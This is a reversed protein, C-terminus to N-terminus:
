TGSWCNRGYGGPSELRPCASATRKQARERENFRFWVRTEEFLPAECEIVMATEFIAPLPVM